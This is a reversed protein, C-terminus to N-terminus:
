CLWTQLNVYHIKFKVKQSIEVKVLSEGNTFLLFYTKALLVHLFMILMYETLKTIAM